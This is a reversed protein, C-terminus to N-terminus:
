VVYGLHVTQCTVGGWPCAHTGLFVLSLWLHYPILALMILLLLRAPKGQKTQLEGTSWMMVGGLAVEVGLLTVVLAGGDTVGALKIGLAIAILFRSVAVCGIAAALGKRNLTLNRLTM